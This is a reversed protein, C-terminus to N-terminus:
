LAEGLKIAEFIKMRMLLFTLIFMAIVFLLGFLIYIQFVSSWDIQVLFPPTRAAMGNGVQLQPIFFESVWIGLATGAALGVVFLFALESGLLSIM